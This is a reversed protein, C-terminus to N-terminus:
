NQLVYYCSAIFNELTCNFAKSDIISTLTNPLSNWSKLAASLFCYDNFHKLFMSLRIKNFQSARTKRSTFYSITISIDTNFHIHNFLAIANTRLIMDTFTVLGLKKCSFNNFGSVDNNTLFKICRKITINM